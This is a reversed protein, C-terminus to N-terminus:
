YATMKSEMAEMLDNIEEIADLYTKALAKRQMPTSASMWAKLATEKRVMAAELLNDM